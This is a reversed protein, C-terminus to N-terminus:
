AAAKNKAAAIPSTTPANSIAIQSLRRLVVEFPTFFYDENTDRRSRGDLIQGCFSKLFPLFPCTRLLKFFIFKRKRRQGFTDFAERFIPSTTSVALVTSRNRLAAVIVCSVNSNVVM